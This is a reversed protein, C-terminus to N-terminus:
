SVENLKTGPRGNDVMSDRFRSQLEVSNEDGNKNNMIDFEKKNQKEKEKEHFDLSDEQIFSEFHQRSHSDTEAGKVIPNSTSSM